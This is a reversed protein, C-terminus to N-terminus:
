GLYPRLWATHTKPDGIRRIIRYTDKRQRPASMKLVSTGMASSRFGLDFHDRLPTNVLNNKSAKPALALFGCDNGSFIFSKPRPVGLRCFVVQSFFLQPIGGVFNIGKACCTSGEKPGVELSTVEVGPDLRRRREWLQSNHSVVINIGMCGVSPNKICSKPAPRSDDIKPTQAAGPAGFFM